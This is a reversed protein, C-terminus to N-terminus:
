VEGGNVYTLPAGPNLASGDGVGIVATCGM